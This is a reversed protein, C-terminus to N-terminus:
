RLLEVEANPNFLYVRGSSLEVCEYRKIKKNGKFQFYLTKGGKIFVGCWLSAVICLCLLFLSHVMVFVGRCSSVVCHWVMGRQRGRWVVFGSVSTM